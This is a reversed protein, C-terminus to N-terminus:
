ISCHSEKVSLSNWLFLLLVAIVSCLILLLEEMSKFIWRMNLKELMSRASQTRMTGIQPNWSLLLHTCKVVPTYEHQWKSENCIRQYDIKSLTALVFNLISFLIYIFYLKLKSCSDYCPRPNILYHVRLCTSLRTSAFDTKDMLPGLLVILSCNNTSYGGSAPLLVRRIPRERSPYLGYALPWVLHIKLFGVFGALQFIIKM